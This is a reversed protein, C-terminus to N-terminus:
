SNSFIIFNNKFDLVSLSKIFEKLFYNKGLPSRDYCYINATNNFKLFNKEFSCDDGIGLSVLFKTRLITKKGVLYGGDNDNGVRILDFRKSPKFNIPFTM